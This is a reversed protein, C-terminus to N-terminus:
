GGLIQSSYSTLELLSDVAPAFLMERLQPIMVASLLLCMSALVIMPAKMSFPLNRKASFNSRPEAAFSERHFKLFYGLTIVSMIAAIFAVTYLQAQVAAIIIVLKSFFGSFPPLGSIAMSGSFSTASTVPMLKGLGGLLRLDRIGTAHEISGANMFMLSKFVAHNVLHFLAGFIAMSAISMSEGNSIVIMGVGLGTFIYGVQSISSYALLRKYDWQGIAMLGGVIISLIGLVTFTIAIEYSIIFMNFFLRILVYVGIAKILIGSLLSSIPSPASSHADPLWAHFPVIASKLGFGVILLIQIFVVLYSGESGALVKSIDAINLTSSAWYIMAIAFLIIMSALGGLVMYKFSAELEEKEVGFAVLAYSSIAAIELFVYLNFLDGSLIVGNMGAIMLCLLTYFNTEATYKKIYGIAFFAALFAIFNVIGLMFSSFGDYVLYIGIPISDLAGWGGIAYVVRQRDWYLMAYLSFLTLVLFIFSAKIRPFGIFFRGMVPIIFAAALPLVVFLPLIYSEM